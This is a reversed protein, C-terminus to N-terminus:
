TRKEWVNYLKDTMEYLQDPTVTHIGMSEQLEIYNCQKAYNIALYYLESCYIKIRTDINIAFDYPTGIISYTYSIMQFKEGNTLPPRLIAVNDTKMILDALWRESVGATIADIIKENGVYSAAHKWFGPILFTALEGRTRTLILDGPELVSLMETVNGYTMKHRAGPSYIKSILKSFISITKHLFNFYAAKM